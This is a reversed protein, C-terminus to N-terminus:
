FGFCYRGLALNHLVPGLLTVTLLVTDLAMRFPHNGRSLKYIVSMSGLSLYLYFLMSFAALLYEVVTHGRFLMPLTLIFAGAHMIIAPYVLGATLMNSLGDYVHQHKVTM